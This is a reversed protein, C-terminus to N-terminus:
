SAKKSMNLLFIHFQKFCVLLKLNEVLALDNAILLLHNCMKIGKSEGKDSAPLEM